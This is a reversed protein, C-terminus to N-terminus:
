SRTAREAVSLPSIYITGREVKVPISKLPRPPPGAAVDGDPTYKGGHCPCAFVAEAQRWSVNCGLHTCVASLAVLQDERRTLFVLGRTESRSYGDRVTMSYRMAVPGDPSLDSVAGVRVWSDEPSVRRLPSLLFAVAPLGVISVLVGQLSVLIRFLIRRRPLDTITPDMNTM